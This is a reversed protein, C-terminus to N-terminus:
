RGRTIRTTFYFIFYYKQSTQIIRKYMTKGIPTVFTTTYERTNYM